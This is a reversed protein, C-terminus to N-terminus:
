VLEFICSLTWLSSYKSFLIISNSWDSAIFVFICLDIFQNIIIYMILSLYGSTCHNVIAWNLQLFHGLRGLNPDFFFNSFFLVFFVYTALILLCVDSCEQFMNWGLLDQQAFLELFCGLFKASPLFNQALLMWLFKGLNGLFAILSM